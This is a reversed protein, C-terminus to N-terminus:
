NQGTRRPLTIFQSQIQRKPPFSSIASRQCRRRRGWRGSGAASSDLWSSKWHWCCGCRPRPGAHGAPAGPPWPDTPPWASPGRRRHHTPRSELPQRFNGRRVRELRHGFSAGAANNPARAFKPSSIVREIRREAWYRVEDLPEGATASRSSDLTERTTDHALRLALRNQREWGRVIPQLFFLLTM